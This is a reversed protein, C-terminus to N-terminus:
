TERRYLFSTLKQTVFIVTKQFTFGHLKISILTESTSAIGMKLYFLSPLQRRRFMPVYVLNCPTVDELVTIEYDNYWDKMTFKRNCPSIYKIYLTEPTPEVGKKLYDTAM